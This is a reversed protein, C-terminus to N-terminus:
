FVDPVTPAHPSSSVLDLGGLNSDHSGFEEDYTDRQGEVRQAREEHADAIPDSGMDKSRRRVTVLATPSVM